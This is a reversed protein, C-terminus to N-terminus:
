EEQMGLEIVSSCIDFVEKGQALLNNLKHLVTMKSLPSPARALFRFQSWFTFITKVDCLLARATSSVVCGQLTPVLGQPLAYVRAKIRSARVFFGTMHAILQCCKATPLNRGDDNCNRTTMMNSATALLGDDKVVLWIRAWMAALV